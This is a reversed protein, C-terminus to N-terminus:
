APPRRAGSALAVGPRKLSPEPIGIREIRRRRAAKALREALISIGAMRIM